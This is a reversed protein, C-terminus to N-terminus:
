EARYPKNLEYLSMERRIAEVAEPNRQEQAFQLARRSIEVAKDFSKNSAYAAALTRLVLPNTGGTLHNAKEGLEVAKPDNRITADPSTAFIWALNTLPEVYNPEEELAKEYHEIAKRTEHKELLAIALNYHAKSHNPRIELARSFEAIADDVLGKGMFVTGLVGHADPDGPDLNLAVRAEAMAEDTEGKRLLGYALSRHAELLDPRLRLSKELHAVAASPDGNAELLESGLNNEAMWCSPNRDITTQWLTESDRYSASQQWALFGLVLLLITSVLFLQSTVASARLTTPVPNQRRKMNRRPVPMPSTSGHRSSALAIGAGALALPGMSALYQFHDSVFSYRFFYVSFFGLIPFLSILYYAAAFFVARGWNAKVFWLAILGALLALLPLWAVLQSSNMEWRPYMFILPHPWVLKSLYFWVARGAIIFREPWTQAWDPGTAGSHFRQEWITWASALVSIAVFPALSMINRATLRRNQWWISLALVAPLMVVSPKSLTALVFFFVSLVFLEVPRRGKAPQRTGKFVAGGHERSEKWKLFCLISLLYFLCSQTNKLETVWAVSQVMVPHLAWIAAGLWAGPIKLHRLVRWLVVASCGHVVVNLLHYPLPNLGVFKHLAWFTTLVLPYYFAHAASWIEKFGLPGVVCPNRTLHRDDDWIFGANFVRSYAIVVLAILLLGWIWKRQESFKLESSLRFMSIKDDGKCLM